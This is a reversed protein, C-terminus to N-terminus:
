SPLKEVSRGLGPLAARWSELESVCYPVLQRQSASWLRGDALPQDVHSLSRSSRALRDRSDIASAHRAPALELARLRAVLEDYRERWKTLAALYDLRESLSPTTM